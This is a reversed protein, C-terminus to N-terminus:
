QSTQKLASSERCKTLFYGHLPRDPVLKDEAATRDHTNHRNGPIEGALLHAHDRCNQFVAARDLCRERFRPLLHLDVEEFGAVCHQGVEIVIVGCVKRADTVAAFTEGAIQHLVFGQRKRRTQLVDPALRLLSELLKAGEAFLQDPGAVFFRALHGLRQRHELNHVSQDRFFDEVYRARM